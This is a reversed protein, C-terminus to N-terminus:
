KLLTHEIALDLTTRTKRVATKTQVQDLMEKVVLVRGHAQKTQAHDHVKKALVQALKLNLQIKTRAVWGQWIVDAGIARMEYEGAPLTQAQRAATDLRTLEARLHNEEKVLKQFVQQQQDYKAQTITLLTHLDSETNM